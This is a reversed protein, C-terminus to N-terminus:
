NQARLIRLAIDARYEPSEGLEAMGGKHDLKEARLVRGDLPEIWEVAYRGAPLTFKLAARHSETSPEYWRQQMGYGSHHIYLAYQRGPESIASVEGAAGMSTDRRMRTLDFGALFKALAQLYGKFEESESNRGAPNGVQYAHNLNSYVSGGGVLFEWAEIRGAANSMTNRYEPRKPHAVWRTEDYGLAKGLDYAALAPRLRNLYHFNIVSAGKVLPGMGESAAYDSNYAIMHRAGAALGKEADLIEAAIAEHWAHNAKAFESQVTRQAPENAIEFYVNPADRLETVIKRTVAKQRALLEASDSALFREAKLGKWAAGQLNNNPHMPSETWRQEDYMRCFLVLEVVVGREDADRLFKKLRAFYAPNWKDLDFKRGEYGGSEASWAWPTIFEEPGRGPSLPSPGHGSSGTERYTGSFTRTLNFGNRKLEDLYAVDDFRLNLVSGYHEASTILAVTKGKFVFYHPNEPHPQIAAAAVALGCILLGIAFGPARM